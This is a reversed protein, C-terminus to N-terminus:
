KPAASRYTLHRFPHAIDHFTELLHRGLYKSGVGLLTEKGLWCLHAELFTQKWALYAGLAHSMDYGAWGASRAM